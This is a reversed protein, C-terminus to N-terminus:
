RDLKCPVFEYYGLGQAEAKTVQGSVARLVLWLNRAM